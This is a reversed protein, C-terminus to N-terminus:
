PTLSDNSVSGFGQIFMNGTPNEFLPHVLPFLKLFVHKLFRSAFNKRPCATLDREQVFFVGLKM